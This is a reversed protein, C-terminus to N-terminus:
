EVELDSFLAPGSEVMLRFESRQSFNGASVEGVLQDDFAVRWLKQFRELM